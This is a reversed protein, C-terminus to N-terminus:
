AADPEVLGLRHAAAAAEVRTRVSLKGLISSVHASATKETVFLVRGIARNTLGRAVLSLVELERPTLGLPGESARASATEETAAPRELGGRQALLELERGLPGAGLERAVAAAAALAEAADRRRRGELLAEAQRFRCYAAPYPRRVRDWCEAAREFSAPDPRRRLRTAEAAATAAYAGVVPSRIRIEHPRTARALLRLGDERAVRVREEDARAAADAVLDAAARIGLWALPAAFWTDDSEDLRALGQEAAALADGPRQEWLALEAARAALPGRYQPDVTNSMLEAM